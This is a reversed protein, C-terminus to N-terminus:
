GLDQKLVSGAVIDFGAEHALTTFTPRDIKPRKFGQGGRARAVPGYQDLPHIQDLVNGVVNELAKPEDRICPQIVHHDAKCRDSAADSRMRIRIVDKQQLGRSTAAPTDPRRRPRLPHLSKRKANQPIPLRGLGVIELGAVQKVDGQSPGRRRRSRRRCSRTSQIESARM